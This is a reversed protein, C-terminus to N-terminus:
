DLALDDIGPFRGDGTLGAAALLAPGLDGTFLSYRGGRAQGLAHAAFAQARDRWREDGTREFLALFAFGDGSTGHCLGAHVHPGARWVLKGGAELLATHEADGPALWSTARAAM